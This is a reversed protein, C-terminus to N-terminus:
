KWEVKRRLCWWLLSMGSKSGGNDIICLKCKVLAAMDLCMRGLM